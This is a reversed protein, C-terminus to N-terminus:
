RTVLAAGEPPTGCGPAHRRWIFSFRSSDDTDLSIRWRFCYVFVLILFLFAVLRLVDQLRHYIMMMICCSLKPTQPLTNPPPPLTLSITLRQYYRFRQLLSNSGHRGRVQFQPHIMRYVDMLGSACMWPDHFAAVRAYKRVNAYNVLVQSTSSM